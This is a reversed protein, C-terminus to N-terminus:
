RRLVRTPGSAYPALTLDSLRRQLLRVRLTPLRDSPTLESPAFVSAWIKPNGLWMPRIRDVLRDAFVSLRHVSCKALEKAGEAPVAFIISAASLDTRAVTWALTFTMRTLELARDRALFDPLSNGSNDERLTPLPWHFLGLDLLCIPTRSLYTHTEASLADWKPGLSSRWSSGAWSAHRAAPAFTELFQKHLEYVPILAEDSFAHAPRNEEAMPHERDM